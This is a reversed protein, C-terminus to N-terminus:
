KGSMMALAKGMQRLEVIAQKNQASVTIYIETLQQLRADCKEKSVIQDLGSARMAGEGIKTSMNVATMVIGGDYKYQEITEIKLDKTANFEDVVVQANRDQILAQALRWIAGARNPGSCTANESNLFAIKLMNIENANLKEFDVKIKEYALTPKKTLKSITILLGEKTNIDPNNWAVESVGAPISSVAPAEAAKATKGFNLQIDQTTAIGAISNIASLTKEKPMDQPTTPVDIAVVNGAFVLGGLVVAVAEKTSM